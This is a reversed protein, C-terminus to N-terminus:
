NKIRGILVTDEASLEELKEVAAVSIPFGNRAFKKLSTQEM